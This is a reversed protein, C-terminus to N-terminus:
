RVQVTADLESLSFWRGSKTESSLMQAHLKVNTDYFNEELLFIIIIMISVKEDLSLPPYSELRNRQGGNYRRDTGVLEFCYM